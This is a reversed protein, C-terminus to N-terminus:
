ARGVASDQKRLVHVCARRLQQVLMNKKMCLVVLHLGWHESGLLSCMRDDVFCQLLCPMGILESRGHLSEHMRPLGESLPLIMGLSRPSLAARRSITSRDVVARSTPLTVPDEMLTQMLSDVFEEPPDQLLEEEAAKEAVAAAVRAALAELERIEGEPLLMFQRLVQACVCAGEPCTGRGQAKGM